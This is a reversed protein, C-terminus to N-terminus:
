VVKYEDWNEYSNMKQNSTRLILNNSIIIGDIELEGISVIIKASLKSNNVSYNGKYIVAEKNDRTFWSLDKPEGRSSCYIFTGDEYFKLYNWSYGWQVHGAHWEASVKKLSQYITNYQLM